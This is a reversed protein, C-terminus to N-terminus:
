QLSETGHLKHEQGKRCSRKNIKKNKIQGHQSELKPKCSRWYDLNMKGEREKSSEMNAFKIVNSLEIIYIM